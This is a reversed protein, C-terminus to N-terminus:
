SKLPFQHKGTLFFNKRSVATDVGARTEVSKGEKRGVRLEVILCEPEKSYFRFVYM